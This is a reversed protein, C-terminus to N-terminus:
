EERGYRFIPRCDYLITLKRGKINFSDPAMKSEVYYSDFHEQIGKEADKLRENAETLIEGQPKSAYEEVEIKQWM